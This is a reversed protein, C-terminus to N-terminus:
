PLDVASARPATPLDPGSVVRLTNSEEGRTWRIPRASYVTLLYDGPAVEPELWWEYIRRGARPAPEQPRAELPELWQGARWLQGAGATRAYVRGFPRGKEAARVWYSAQEGPKLERTDAAGADLRVPEPNLERFAHASLQIRGKGKAPAQLRLKYTGGDLLL